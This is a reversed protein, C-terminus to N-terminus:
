RTDEIALSYKIGLFMLIGLAVFLYNMSFYALFCTALLPGVVYAAPGVIRFVSILNTNETNIKKFFYAESMVEITAAGVRTMFLMAGWVLLSKTTLFALVVTFAIMILFGWCLLEKEGIKKDALWGLPTQIIVFPLLMITFVIGIQQWNFGFHQNLYIPTYIVMCSYFIQLLFNVVTISRVDKNGAIEKITDFIKFHRYKTDKFDKLSLVSIFVVIVMIFASVLFVKQYAGVGAILGALLPAFIWAFNTTTLYMGRIRGTEVNRSYHEIFIDFCYSVLTTTISIMSFSALLITPSKAM